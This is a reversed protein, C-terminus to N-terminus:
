DIPNGHARVVSTSDPKLARHRHHTTISAGPTSPPLVPIRLHSTSYVEPIKFVIGSHINVFLILFYM